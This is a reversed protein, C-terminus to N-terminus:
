GILCKLLGCLHTECFSKLFKDDALFLELPPGKSTESPKQYWCTNSGPFDCNKRLFCKNSLVSISQRSGKRTKIIKELRFVIHMFLPITIEKDLTKKGWLVPINRVFCAKTNTLVQRCKFYVTRRHKLNNHRPLWNPPFYTIRQSRPYLNILIKFRLIFLLLLTSFIM